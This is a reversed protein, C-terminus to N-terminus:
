ILKALDLQRQMAALRNAARQKPPEAPKPPHKFNFAEPIAAMAALEVGKAKRNVFGHAIAEDATLWTEADMMANLEDHTKGTRKAYIKTLEGQAKDLYDGASRMEDAHGVAMMYPRHIMYFAGDVISIDQAALAIISGASAALADIQANVGAKWQSLMTHIAMAERMSGGPTNLRMEIPKNKDFKALEDRVGKATVGSEFLGEGIVDYIWLENAM